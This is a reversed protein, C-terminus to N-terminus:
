SSIRPGSICQDYVTVPKHLHSGTSPVPDESCGIMQMYAGFDLDCANLCSHAAWMEVSIYAFGHRQM